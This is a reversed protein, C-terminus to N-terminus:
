SQHKPTGGQRPAVSGRPDNKDSMCRKLFDDRKKGHMHLDDAGLKCTMAKEKATVAAAPVSPLLVVSFASCLAAIFVFRHM